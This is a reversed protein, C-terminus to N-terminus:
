HAGLPAVGPPDGDRTGTRCARASMKAGQRKTGHGLAPRSDTCEYTTFRTYTHHKELSPIAICVRSSRSRVSVSDTRVPKSARVQEPLATRANHRLKRATSSLPTMRKACLGCPYEGGGGEAVSVVM